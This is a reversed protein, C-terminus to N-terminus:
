PNERHHRRVRRQTVKGAIVLYENPEPCTGYDECRTCLLVTRELGFGARTLLSRLSNETFVWRYDKDYHRSWGLAQMTKWAVYRPKVRIPRYWIYLRGQPKLVACARGLAQLPDIHHWLTCAYLAGDFVHPRFPLYEGLAQAFPFQRAADGFFPDIGIWTLQDDTAGMYSPRPLAGCGIDLILGPMTERVLEAIYREHPHNGGSFVGPDGELHEQWMQNMLKRWQPLNRQPNKRPDPILCPINNRVAYENEGSQLAVVKGGADRIASLPSSPDLPCALYQLLFQLHEETQSSEEPGEM